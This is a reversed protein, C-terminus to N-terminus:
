SSNNIEETKFLKIYMEIRINKAIAPLSSIEDM